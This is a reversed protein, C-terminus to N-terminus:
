FRFRLGRMVSPKKRQKAVAVVLRDGRKLEQSFIQVRDTGAIGTRVIVPTLTEQPGLKWLRKEGKKLPPLGAENLGPVSGPRPNFRLAQDPVMLADKVEELLIRVNATMGPRLKLERNDVDLVVTYTVVNQEVVPENRIQTVKATFSEDPFAPVTFVATQGVKVRGIDAEDVRTHVQMTRLDEAIKFMVPAQFSAAVTQGVDVNRSIVVGNVPAVIHTYRLQLEAEQLKADAQAVLAKDAEVQAGAADAKTKQKDFESQSITKKALLGENRRLDRLEEAFTVESKALRAKAAQLDAKAQAVKAEFLRPDILAILQGKKVRSEFDANLEKVTGSVQSGVLVEVLPKLTGTCTIEASLLGKEVPVTIFRAAPEEHSEIGLFVYLAIGLGAIVAILLIKKM